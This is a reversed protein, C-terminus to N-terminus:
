RGPGMSKVVDAEILARLEKTVSPRVGFWREFGPAAQHLLMGLGDVARLGRARAAALLPTELPVYVLDAVVAGSPLPTLDIPLPAHGVMGMASANILLRAGSLLTSLAAPAYGRVGGGFHEALREAREVTRNVLAIRDVGRSLLGSLVARSAGGAGIVVAGQLDSAWGPAAEDLNALFGSVDTNDGYLAGNECWLTNVAGLDRATATFEACAAYAAEKHPVTVNAGVLGDRGITAAFEAFAGPQVARLEYQGELGLQRLWYNHILPSRSHAVPWGAICARRTAPSNM